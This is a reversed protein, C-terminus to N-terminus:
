TEPVILPDRPELTEIAGPPGSLAIQKGDSIVRFASHFGRLGSGRQVGGRRM